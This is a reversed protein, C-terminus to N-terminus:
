ECCSTCHGRQVLPESVVDVAESVDKGLIVLSKNGEEWSGGGSGACFFVKAQPMRAVLQPRRGGEVQWPLVVEVQGVVLRPADM